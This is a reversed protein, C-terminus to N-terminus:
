HYNNLIISQNKQTYENNMKKAEQPVYEQPVYRFLTLGIAKGVAKM